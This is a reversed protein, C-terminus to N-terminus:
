FSILEGVKMELHFAIETLEDVTFDHTGNLWYFLEDPERDLKKAFDGQDAFGKEIILDYIRCALEVRNKNQKRKLPPAEDLIKRILPSEVYETKNNSTNMM